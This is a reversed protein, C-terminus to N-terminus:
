IENKKKMYVFLAFILAVVIAIIGGVLWWDIKYGYAESDLVSLGNLQLIKIVKYSTTLSSVMSESSDIATESFGGDLPSQHNLVWNITTQSPKNTSQLINLSLTAFYTASISAYPVPEDPYFSYGGYHQTYTSDDIYHYEIFAVLHNLYQTALTEKSIFDLSQLAYYTYDLGPTQTTQNYKFGRMGNSLPSICAMIFAAIQDTWNFLETEILDLHYYSKLAYYTGVTSANSQDNLRYGRQIVGGSNYTEASSNLINKINNKQLEDISSISDITQFAELLYSLQVIDEKALVEDLQKLLSSVIRDSDYKNKDVSLANLLFAASRTSAPTIKSPDDSLKSSDYFGGDQTDQREVIFNILMQKRTAAEGLVPAFLVIFSIGIATSFLLVNKKM